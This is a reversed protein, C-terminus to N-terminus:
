LEGVEFAVSRGAEETSSSADDISTTSTSASGSGTDTATFIAL